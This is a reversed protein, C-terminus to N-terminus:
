QLSLIGQFSITVFNWIVVLFMVLDLWKLLKGQEFFILGAAVAAAALGKLWMNTRFEVAFVPNFETAGLALATRTLYADLINLGILAVGFLIDRISM